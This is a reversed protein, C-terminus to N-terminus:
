LRFEWSRMFVWSIAAIGVSLVLGAIASTLSLRHRIVLYAAAIFVSLQVAADFVAGATTRGCVEIGRRELLDTCKNALGGSNFAGYVLVVSLSLSSLLLM